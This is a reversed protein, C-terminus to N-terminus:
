APKRFGKGVLLRAMYSLPRFRFRRLAEPGRFLLLKPQSLAQLVVALVFSRDNRWTRRENVTISFEPYNGAAGKVEVHFERRGRSCLLDYGRNESSVDRVTWGRKRFHRMVVQVAAQEVQRNAEPLGFGAGQEHTPSSLSAPWANSLQLGAAKLLRRADSVSIEYLTRIPGGKFAPIAAIEPHSKKLPRIRVGVLQLPQLIPLLGHRRHRKWRLVKAIGVLENRNSQYALVIDGPRLKSLEPTWAVRGWWRPRRARFFEAWDGYSRQYPLNRSNCKYVWIPLSRVEVASPLSIGALLRNARRLVIAHLHHIRLPAAM